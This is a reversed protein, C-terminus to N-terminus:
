TKDLLSKSFIEEIFSVGQKVCWELAKEYYPSLTLESLFVRLSQSIDENYITRSLKENEKGDEDDQVNTPAAIHGTELLHYDNLGSVDKININEPGM